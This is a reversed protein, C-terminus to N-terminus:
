RTNADRCAGWKKCDDCDSYKDLDKGFKHGYACDDDADKTSSRGGRGRNDDREDSDRENRSSRSERRDDDDSNRSSRRGGREEKEERSNDDDRSDSRGRRSERGNDKDDEGRTSRRSSRGEEKDAKGDINRGGRRRTHNDDDAKDESGHDPEERDRQGRTDRDDKGDDRGRDRGGRVSGREEGSSRDRGREGRSDNDDKSHSGGSVDGGMFLEEIEAYPMEILLDDLCLGDEVDRDDYDYKRAVFDIRDCKAFSNKNFTEISFRAKLTYGNELEAFGGWDEEGEVLERDLQKTFNHYSVDYLFIKNKDGETDIVNYMMKEKPWYTDLEKKSAGEKRRQKGYDCIPCPKGWTKSPCIIARTDSGVDRHIFYRRSHWLSGVEAGHQKDPHHKDSVVYPIIDLRVTQDKDISFFEVKKGEPLRLCSNGFTQNKRANAADRARSRMNSKFRAM